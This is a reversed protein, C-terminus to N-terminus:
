KIKQYALFCAASQAEYKTRSTATEIVKGKWECTCEYFEVSIKMIGTSYVLSKSYFNKVVKKSTITFSEAKNGETIKEILLHKWTKNPPHPDYHTINSEICDRFHQITALFNENSYLTKYATWKADKETRGISLVLPRPEIWKIECAWYVPFGGYRYVRDRILPLGKSRLDDELILAYDIYTGLLLTMLDSTFVWTELVDCAAKYGFLVHVSGILAQFVHAKARDQLMDSPIRTCLVPVNNACLIVFYSSLCIETTLASTKEKIRHYTDSYKTNSLLTSLFAEIVPEGIARLIECNRYEVSSKSIYGIVCDEFEKYFSTHTFAALITHREKLTLVGGIKVISGLYKQIANDTDELRKRPSKDIIVPEM